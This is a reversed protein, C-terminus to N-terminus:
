TFDTPAIYGFDQWAADAHNNKLVYKSDIKMKDIKLFFMAELESLKSNAADEAAAKAAADTTPATAPAPTTSPAPTTDTATSPATSPALAPAPTSFYLRLQENKVDDIKLDVPFSPSHLQLLEPIHEEAVRRYIKYIAEYMTKLTKEDATYLKTFLNKINPKTDGMVPMWLYNKIMYIMNTNSKNLELSKDKSKKRHEIKIPRGMTQFYENFLLQQQEDSIHISTKREDPTKENELREITSACKDALLEMEGSQAPFWSLNQGEFNYIERYFGRRFINRSVRYHLMSILAHTCITYSEFTEINEGKVVLLLLYKRLMELAKLNTQFHCMMLTPKLGIYFKMREQHFATKEKSDAKRMERRKRRINENTNTAERKPEDDYTHIFKNIINKILMAYLEDSNYLPLDIRIPFRRPLGENRNFFCLDMLNKYGAVITASLGKHNALFPLLTAVYEEGYPDNDLETGKFSCGAISYAEDMFLTSELSKYMASMVRPATQGVYQGILESRGTENFMLYDNDKNYPNSTLVGIASYFRAIIRALTTKGSGAPGTISTNFTFSGILNEPVLAIGKILSFLALRIPKYDDGRYNNYIIKVMKMIPETIKTKSKAVSQEEEELACLLFEKRKEVNKKAVEYNNMKQLLEFYQIKSTDIIDKLVTGKLETKQQAINSNSDNVNILNVLNKGSGEFNKNLAGLAVSIDGILKDYTAEKYMLLKGVGYIYKYYNEPNDFWKEVDYPTDFNKTDIFDPILEIREESSM